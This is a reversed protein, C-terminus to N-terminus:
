KVTDSTSYNQGPVIANQAETLEHALIATTITFGLIVVLLAIALGTIWKKFEAIQEEPKKAKRVPTTRKQQVSAPQTFMPVPTGPKVPYDSMDTLCEKCFVQGLTIERGCKM